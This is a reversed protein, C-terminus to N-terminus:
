PLSVGIPIAILFAWFACWGVPKRWVFYFFAFVIYYVINGKSEGVFGLIMNIVFFWIHFRTFALEKIGMLWNYTRLHDM